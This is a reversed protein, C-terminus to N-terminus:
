SSEGVTITLKVTKNGRVVQMELRKGIATRALIESLDQGTRLESGDASIIIDGPEMGAQDAPSNRVLRYVFLGYDASLSLRYQQELRARVEPDLPIYTVGIFPRRVRGDEILQGAIDRATDIPIAFGIGQAEQIIATNIGIVRGQSDLLPGGSNGPSISADTQIMDYLIVGQQPDVELSRGLASIVGTTVTNQFQQGLPNGIAIAAQGVRLNGSSGLDALPLNSGNIELVALDTLPDNGVVKAPFERGDSLIASIRTATGVVHSNTLIYTTNGVTRFLVGSGLGQIERRSPQIGFFDWVLREETTTIMAVAPGVKNVVNVTAEEITLMPANLPVNNNGNQSPLSDQQSPDVQASGGPAQAIGLGAFHLVGVVVAAGLIACSLAIAILTGVGFVFKQNHFRMM